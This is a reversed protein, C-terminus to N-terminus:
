DSSRLEPFPLTKKRSQANNDRNNVVVLNKRTSREFSIWANLPSLKVLPPPLKVDENTQSLQLARSPLQSSKWEATSINFLSSSFSPFDVNRKKTMTKTRSRERETEAEPFFKKSFLHFKNFTRKKQLIAFSCPFRYPHRLFVPYIYNFKTIVSLCSTSLLRYKTLKIRDGKSPSFSTEM